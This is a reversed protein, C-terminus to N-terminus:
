DDEGKDRRGEGKKMRKEMMRQMKQKQEDTLIAYIEKRVEASKLIKTKLQAAAADAHKEAKAHYEPDDPTISLMEQRMGRRAMKNTKGDEKARTLIAKLQTEQEDTMDLKDSLREMKKEYKESCEHKDKGFWGSEANATGITFLGAAIITPVVLAMRTRKNTM